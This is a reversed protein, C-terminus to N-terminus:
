ANNVRRITNPILSGASCHELLKKVDQDSKLQLHAFLFPVCIRRLCKNVLSLSSLEASTFQYFPELHRCSPPGPIYAVFTVIHHLLENPLITPNSMM